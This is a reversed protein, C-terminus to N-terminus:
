QGKGITLKEGHPCILFWRKLKSWRNGVAGKGVALKERRSALKREHSVKKLSEEYKNTITFLKDNLKAYFLVSVSHM